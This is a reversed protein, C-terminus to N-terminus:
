QLIRGLPPFLVAAIREERLVVEGAFTMGARFQEDGAGAPMRDLAVEVAFTGPEAGDVIWAVHGAGVGAEDPPYEDLSLRVADGVRVRARQRSPLVLRGVLKAGAPSLRAVLDGARLSEGIPAELSEITGDIPALIPGADTALLTSGTRVAQGAGISLSRVVGAAAARVSVPRPAREVVGRGGASLQVKCAFAIVVAVAFLGGLAAFAV